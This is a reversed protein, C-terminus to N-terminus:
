KDPLTLNGSFNISQKNNSTVNISATGNIWIDVFFRYTDDTGKVTFSVTYGKGEKFLVKLDSTPESFKIGGEGNMPASYAIGYYPLYSYASDNSMRLTYESTLVIMQGHMPNAKDVELQYHKSEVAKKVKAELAAAKQQRTEKQGFAFGAFVLLGTLLFIRTKM